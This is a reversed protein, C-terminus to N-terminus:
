KAVVRQARAEDRSFRKWGHAIKRWDPGSAPWKRVGRRGDKCPAVGHGIWDRALRDVHAASRGTIDVVYLVGHQALAYPWCVGLLLRPGRATTEFISATREGKRSHEGWGRKASSKSAYWRKHGTMM